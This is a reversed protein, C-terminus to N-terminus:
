LSGPLRQMLSISLIHILDEDHNQIAVHLQDELYLLKQGIAECKEGLETSILCLEQASSPFFFVQLSCVTKLAVWTDAIWRTTGPPSADWGLERLRQM